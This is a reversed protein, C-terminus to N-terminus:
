EEQTTIRVDYDDPVLPRLEKELREAFHPFLTSGGTLIISEYLVPHLHPHCANVARVICDPLGAQNMGLDAPRFIMEPVLFRENTLDFENKTLDLKHTNNHHQQPLIQDKAEPLYTNPQPPYKVFGKTHTVGDPLVYTSRFLNHNGTKTAINLHTPLDLSVFCLNEKVHDIIFTEDMVNVSRFSILEKLYNTLAKGGLDIRKVAYNLTLNQFVPSAHTFSFGCDVVLSCQAKSLLGTPSRSTEYLHVLSPSDAVYLSTFNFDEFVLEDLSHQISPLSFLPETLLLSSESPNIRLISTFLHSWIERQLDPNILYGRDMPRRVSASTLDEEASGPTNLPNPHVWKKSAVPKHLCNPVIASPEREGGFGAKILGGGNDVVVVQRSTSM